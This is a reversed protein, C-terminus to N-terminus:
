ASQRETTDKLLHGRDFVERPHPESAQIYKFSDRRLTDAILREPQTFAGAAFGLYNRGRRQDIAFGTTTPAKSPFNGAISGPSVSQSLLRFITDPQAYFLDASIGLIGGILMIAATAYIDASSPRFRKLREICVYALAWLAAAPHACPESQLADVVITGICRKITSPRCVFFLHVISAHAAVNRMFAFSLRHSLPFAVKSKIGARNTLSYVIKAPVFDAGDCSWMDRVM